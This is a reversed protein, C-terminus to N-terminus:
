ESRQRQTAVRVQVPCDSTLTCSLSVHYAKDYAGVGCLLLVGRTFHGRGGVGWVIYSGGLGRGWM